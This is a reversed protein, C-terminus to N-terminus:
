AAGGTIKGVAMKVEARIRGVEARVDDNPIDVDTIPVTNTRRAKGMTGDSKLLLGSVEVHDPMGSPSAVKDVRFETRGKVDLWQEDRDLHLVWQIEAVAKM